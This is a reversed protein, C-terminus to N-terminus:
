RSHDSGLHYAETTVNGSNGGMNMWVHRQRQPSMEAPIDRLMQSPYSMTGDESLLMYAERAGYGYLNTVWVTDGSQRINVDVSNMTGDSENVFEHKGNAVLLWTDRYIPSMAVTEDTSTRVKGDQRDSHHHRQRLIIPM